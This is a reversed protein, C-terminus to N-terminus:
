KAGGQWYGYGMGAVFGAILWLVMVGVIGIEMDAGKQPRTLNDGPTVLM